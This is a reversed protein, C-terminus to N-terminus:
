PKGDPDLVRGSVPDTALYKFITRDRFQVPGPVDRYISRRRRALWARVMRSLKSPSRTGREPLASILGAALTGGAMLAALSLTVFRRFAQYDEATLNATDTRFISAALRTMPNAAREREVAKKATVLDAEEAKLDIPKLAALASRAIALDADAAAARRAHEAQARSNSGAIANAASSGPAVWGKRGRYASVSPNAQLAVAERGIEESHTQAATVAATLRDRDQDRRAADAKAADLGTQAEALKTEAVTVAASRATLVSEVGLVLTEGTLTSLTLALALAGVASLLGLRPIRLVLPLRVAEVATAALVIPATVLLNGSGAVLGWAVTATAGLIAIEAGIAALKLPNASM